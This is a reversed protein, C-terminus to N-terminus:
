EAPPPDDNFKPDDSSAAHRKRFSQPSVGVYKHFLRSFYTADSFGTSEAVERISANSYLLLEKANDIRLLLIFRYPSIGMNETFLHSFRSLSMHVKAACEALDINEQYHELIYSSAVMIESPHHKKAPKSSRILIDLLELLVGNIEPFCIPQKPEGFIRHSNYLLFLRRFLNEFITREQIEYIMDERPNLLAMSEVAADGTFHVYYAVPPDKAFFSYLQRVSPPYYLCKGETLLISDNGFEVQVSGSQLYLLYHDKRGYPRFITFDQTVEKRCGCNNIQLYYQAPFDTIDKYENFGIM